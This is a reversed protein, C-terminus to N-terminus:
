KSLRDLYDLGAKLTAKISREESEILKLKLLNVDRGAYVGTVKETEEIMDIIESRKFDSFRGIVTYDGYGSDYRHIEQRGFDFKYPIAKSKRKKRSM